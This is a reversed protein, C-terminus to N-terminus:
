FPHPLTVVIYMLNRGIFAGLTIALFVLLRLWPSTGPTSGGFWLLAAFAIPVVTTLLLQIGLAIPHQSTILHLAEQLRAAAFDDLPARSLTALMWVASVILMLSGAVAGGLFCGLLNRPGHLSVFAASASGGLLLATGFFSVPVWGANWAPQTPILYVATSSAVAALSLLSTAVGTTVRHDPKHAWWSHSYLLAAFVFLMTLFVELSLRSTGLNLFSKWASLPRGLHLLSALLGIAALPFIAIGLPRM